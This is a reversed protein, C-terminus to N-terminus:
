LTVIYTKLAEDIDLATTKAKIDIELADNVMGQLQIKDIKAALDGAKRLPYEGVGFDKSVESPSRQGRYKAITILRLQWAIMALIYQPEIKQARQDAYLKLARRKDQKFAADLLDFIRGQPTPETLLDINARSITPEYTILKDLENALLSQNPGLREVMYTADGFTLQGGQKKAESVLWKPLERSDMEKFDELETQKQLVKFYASRRDVNPEYIVLESSEPTSSIIQEINEAAPGNQSLDRLVVMKRESLFPLSQVAEIIAQPEATEADIKEIALEGYKKIFDAVLESLRRHLLYSNKGTLTTIM